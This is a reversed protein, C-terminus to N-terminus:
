SIVLFHPNVLSQKNYSLPTIGDILVVKKGAEEVIAQGAASDWEMTPSFRPYADAIGEAVMCFKISSGSTMIRISNHKAKQENIFADTLLESQHSRSGLITFEKDASQPLPLKEGAKIIDEGNNSQINAVKYAGKGQVAYYLIRQVPIYIFGLVPKGNEILAINVTFEGNRKVFEKTGDLPDVLWFTDWDKRKEYIVEAMEESIVPYATLKRLGTSIIEHSLKDALTLPSNDEKYEVSFPSDYVKLIAEGAAIILEALKAPLTVIEDNNM